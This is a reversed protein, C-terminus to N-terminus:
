EGEDDIVRNNRCNQVKDLLLHLLKTCILIGISVSIVILAPGANNLFHVDPVIVGFKDPTSSSYDSAPDGRFIQPLFLYHSYRFGYLFHNLPPPYDISLFLIMFLFQYYDIVLYSLHGSNLVLDLCFLSLMISSM